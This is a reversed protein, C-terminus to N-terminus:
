SLRAVAAAVAAAVAPDAMVAATSPGAVQQGGAPHDRLQVNLTDILVSWDADETLKERILAAQSVSWFPADYIRVTMPLPRHQETFAQISADDDPLGLQAFLDQMTHHASNM